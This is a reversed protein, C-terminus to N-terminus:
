LHHCLGTFRPLTQITHTLATIQFMCVLFDYNQMLFEVTQSDWLTNVNDGLSLSKTAPTVTRLSVELFGNGERVRNWEAGDPHLYGLETSYIKYNGRTIHDAEPLEALGGHSSFRLSPDPHQMSCLVLCQSKNSTPTSPFPNQCLRVYLNSGDPHTKPTKLQGPFNSQAYTHEKEDIVYDYM